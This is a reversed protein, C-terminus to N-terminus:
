ETLGRRAMEEDYVRNVREIRDYLGCLAVEPKMARLDEDSQAALLAKWWSEFEVNEVDCQLIGTARLNLNGPVMLRCRHTIESWGPDPPDEILDWYCPIGAAKLADGAATASDPPDRRGERITYAYVEAAEPLWDPEAGDVESEEIPADPQREHIPRVPKSRRSLKRARMEDDYIGQAMEVLDARDIELLEEDSLSAYHQRLERPDLRM